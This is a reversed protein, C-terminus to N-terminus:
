SWNGKDIFVSAAASPKYTYNIVPALRVYAWYGDSAKIDYRNVYKTTYNGPYIRHMAKDIRYWQGANYNPRQILPWALNSDSASTNRITLLESKNWTSADGSASVSLQGYATVYATSSTTELGGGTYIGSQLIKGWQVTIDSTITNNVEVISPNCCDDTNYNWGNGINAGYQYYTKTYYTPAKLYYNYSAGWDALDWHTYTARSPGDVTYVLSNNRYIKIPRYLNDGVRNDIYVGTKTFWTNPNLWATSWQSNTSGGPTGSKSYRDTSISLPVETSDQYHGNRIKVTLTDGEKAKFTTASDGGSFMVVGNLLIQNASILGAMAPVTITYRPTAIAVGTITVASTITNPVNNISGFSYSYQDDDQNIVFTYANSGITLINSNTSCSTNYPATASSITIGGSNEWHGYTSNLTAVFLRQYVPQAPIIKPGDVVYSTSATTVSTTQNSDFTYLNADTVEWITMIERGSRYWGKGLKVKTGENYEATIHYWTFVTGSQIDQGASSVNTTASTHTTSTTVSYSYRTDDTNDNATFTVGTNNLLYGSSYNSSATGENLTITVNYYLYSATESYTGTGTIIATTTAYSDSWTPNSIFGYKYDTGSEGTWTIVTGYEYTGSSKDASCHTGNITVEYTQKQRTQYVTASGGDNAETRSIDGNYLTYDWEATDTEYSLAQIYLTLGSDIELTTNASITTWNESGIKYRVTSVYDGINITYTWSGKWIVTGNSDQIQKVDKLVGDVPIKIGKVSSFDFSM